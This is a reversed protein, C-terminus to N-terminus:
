IELSMYNQHQATVYKCGKKGPPPHSPKPSSSFLLGLVLRWARNAGQDLARPILQAVVVKIRNGNGYNRRKISFIKQVFIFWILELLPEKLLLVVRCSNVNGMLHLLIRLGLTCFSKTMNVLVM